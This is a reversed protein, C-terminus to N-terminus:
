GPLVRRDQLAQFWFRFTEETDYYEHFGAQRLKISSMFRPPVPEDSGYAFCFDAYHHSEGLLDLLKTERLGHRRVVRDWVAANAPLYEALSRPEDPGLDVGLTRAFSPWLNRWEFVDGNAVNFHQGAAHPTLAAWELVGAVLRSDAVEWVYSAGGPFSFPEGLERRIAAYLGIIPPLNMVMGAPGGVILQPRLITWGFGHREALEGLYDEQLWYFNAHDDRPAQEKAPIPIPHLHVGYAKAGQMISVHQLSAAAILPELVNQLMQLNTQMHDDEQWGGVLGPWEYVAAYVVHTVERLGELASRSAEPDRLDVAIHQFPRESFVEPARRSVAIVDWDLDSALFRDLAASGVLGSAGVILV